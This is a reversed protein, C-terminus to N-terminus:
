MVCVTSLDEGAAVSYDKRLLLCLMRGLEGFLLQGSNFSIPMFCKGDFSSSKSQQRFHVDRFTLFFSHTRRGIKAIVAGSRLVPPLEFKAFDRGLICSGIGLSVPRTNLVNCSPLTPM